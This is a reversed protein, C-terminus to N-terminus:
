SIRMAPITWTTWKRAQHRWGLWEGRPGTLDAGIAWPLIDASARLHMIATAHCVCKKVQIACVTAKDLGQCFRLKWEYGEFIDELLCTEEVEKFPYRTSAYPVTLGCCVLKIVICQYQNWSKCPCHVNINFCPNVRKLLRICSLLHLHPLFQPWPNKMAYDCSCNNVKCALISLDQLMSLMVFDLLHPWPM